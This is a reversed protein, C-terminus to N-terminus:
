GYMKKQNDTNVASMGGSSGILILASKALPILVSKMLPLGAEM